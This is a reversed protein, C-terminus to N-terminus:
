SKGGSMRARWEDRVEARTKMDQGTYWGLPRAIQGTTHGRSGRILVIPGGHIHGHASTYRHHRGAHWAALDLNARKPAEGHHERCHARLASLDLEERGLVLARTYSSGDRTREDM